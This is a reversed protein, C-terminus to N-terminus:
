DEALVATVVLGSRPEELRSTTIRLRQGLIRGAQRAAWRADVVAQLNGNELCITFRGEVALSRVIQAALPNTSIDGM